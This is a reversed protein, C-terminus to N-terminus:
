ARAVFRVRKFGAFNRHLNVQLNNEHILGECRKGAAAM